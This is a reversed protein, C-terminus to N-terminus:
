HCRRQSRSLHIDHMDTVSKQCHYNEVTKWLSKKNLASNLNQHNTQHHFVTKEAFSNMVYKRFSNIRPLNASKPKTKARCLTRTVDLVSFKSRCAVLFQFGWFFAIWKLSSKPVMWLNRMIDSNSYLLQNELLKIDCCLIIRKSKIAFECFECLRKVMKPGFFKVHSFEQSAFFMCNTVHIM